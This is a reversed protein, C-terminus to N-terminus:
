ERIVGTVRELAVIRGLHEALVSDTDAAKSQWGQHLDALERRISELVGGYNDAATRVVERLEETQVRLRHSLREDAEALRADLRSGLREELRAESALLHAAIEKALRDFMEQMEVDWDAAM